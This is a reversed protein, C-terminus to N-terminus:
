SFLGCLWPAASLTMFMVGDNVGNKHLLCAVLAVSLTGVLNLVGAHLYALIVVLGSFLGILAAHTTYKSVFACIENSFKVTVFYTLLLAIAAGIITAMLIEGASLIHHINHEDTFVPPARCLGIAPGIATPSLPLGIAILPILTGSIYSANTLGDMTSID